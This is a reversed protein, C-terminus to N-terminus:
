RPERDSQEEKKVPIDRRADQDRRSQLLIGQRLSGPARMDKGETKVDQAAVLRVKEKPVENSQGWEASPWPSHSDM